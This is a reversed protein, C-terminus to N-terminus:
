LIEAFCYRRGNTKRKFKLLYRLSKIDYIKGYKFRLKLNVM